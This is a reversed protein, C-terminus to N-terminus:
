FRSRDTGRGGSMRLMLLRGWVDNWTVFLVNGRWRRNGDNVLVSRCMWSWGFLQVYLRAVIGNM